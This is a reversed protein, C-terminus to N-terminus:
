KRDGGRDGDCPRAEEERAEKMAADDTLERPTAPKHTGGTLQRIQERLERAREERAKRDGDDPDPKENGM